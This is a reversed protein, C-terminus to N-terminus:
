RGGEQLGQVVWYEWRPDSVGMPIIGLWRGDSSWTTVRVWDWMGLNRSLHGPLPVETEAGTAVEVVRVMATPGDAMDPKGAYAIFRGTPDWVAGLIFAATALRRAGRGDSGVVWLGAAEPALRRPEEIGAQRVFLVQNGAPSIRPRAYGSFPAEGPGGRAAVVRGDPQGTAAVVVAEISIGMATLNWMASRVGPGGNPAEIRRAYAMVSGDASLSFGSANAIPPFLERVRGTAVDLAVVTRGESLWGPEYLVERGDRSWWMLDMTHGQSGVNWAVVSRPDASHITIEPSLRHGFAVRRNDPSWAFTSASDPRSGPLLQAGGDAPRGTAPDMAIRYPVSRQGVEIFQTYYLGAETWRRLNVSAASVALRAEGSPAGDAVPVVSIGAAGQYAIARGDPAWHPRYNGGPTSTIQRPAGGAVPRVLVQADEGGGTAYAVFRGDPSLAGNGLYAGDTLVTRRGDDVAILTLRDEATNCLLHRGDKSWDEVDIWGEVQTGPVVTVERSAVDVIQVAMVGTRQDAASFAVRRGDPAWVPFYNWAAPLGAAVQREAGSAVDRVTVAGDLLSIFAVRRGDPSPAVAHYAHAPVDHVSLVQRTVPGRAVTTAASLAALRARAQAVLDTQDAFQSVVRQYAREAETSGLKEYCQGMRVLAGAALTRDASFERVIREYLAIAQRLEGDAREKVLAQQFLDQGSQALAPQTGVVLIAAALAALLTTRM